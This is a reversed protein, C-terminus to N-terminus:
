VGGLLGSYLAVSWAGFASRQGNDPDEPAAPDEFLDAVEEDYFLEWAEGFSDWKPHRYDPKGRWKSLDLQMRDVEDAYRIATPAPAPILRHQGLAWARVVTTLRAMAAGPEPDGVARTDVLSSKFDGPDRILRFLRGQTPTGAATLALSELWPQILKDNGRSPTISVAVGSRCRVEDILRVHGLGPLDFGLDVATDSLEGHWSPAAEAWLQEARARAHAFEARGIEDAPLEENSRLRRIVADLPRGQKLADLLESVVQWQNLGGIALPMEDSLEPDRYLPLNVASRLFAKAPDALFRGLQTLSVQQPPTGVPRGLAQRRRRSRASGITTPHRRALAGAHGAPDFSPLLAYNAESSATPPHAIPEPSAGLEELLWGIAAPAPVPDNTRQSYAQRVILLKRASRAHGLLQRLRRKRQDPALDGLDISDPMRGSTGPVADDSVGLLAVLRHEVHALERLPAVILSGNGAAVRSSPADLSDTLLHGFESRTLLTTGGVHDAELRTLVAHTHLLQWQESPPSGLLDTVAARARTVWEPITAPSATRATLRRLRSVIECLTGVTELDSSEVIDAGALQLGGDHGPAVTLGILLRDLGRLWTNQALGDLEFAARHDADMGWHVGAGGVLEIIAQRDDLRWRHAIPEELLIEVLQTASARLEGLRLLTSLLRLTPNGSQGVVQQVRLRRGPHIGDATPSFAADLLRAYREPHPCIIAVHRPELTPDAAFARTLEDRLVEVQRAPGHSDHLQIEPAPSPGPVPLTETEGAIGTAWEDGASGTPAIVTLDPLAEIASRQPVTLDDVALVVTPTPDGSATEVITALTELPDIELSEVTARLLAPQWAWREPLPEGDVGVEEGDLWAAVLDPAFDVYWRQLRALRAATARRGATRGTLRALVRHETSLADIADWTALDLPTGLWRSRERAVGSASAIEAMLKPPTLYDIGSSIGLRAAVEQGVLRGTAASSVVVRSRAFPDAPGQRLEDALRDLLRSWGIGRVLRVAM